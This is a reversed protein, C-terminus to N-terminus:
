LPNWYMAADQKNLKVKLSDLRCSSLTKPYAAKRACSTLSVPPCLFM